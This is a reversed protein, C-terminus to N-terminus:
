LEDHRDTEHQPLCIAPTEMKYLYECRNPESVSTIRTDLGCELQVIASRQPGNWCGAGNSYIMTSYKDQKGDWRDWTGLRFDIFILCFDKKLLISENTGLKLEAM